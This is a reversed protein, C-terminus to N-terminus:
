LKNQSNLEIFKEITLLMSLSHSYRVPNQETFKKYFEKTIDPPVIEELFKKEFLHMRLNSDNENGLFQLEWNRTVFKKGFFNSAIIKKGKRVARLMMMKNGGFENYNYLNLPDYPQWPIRALEASKMKIYEIQIKRGSLFEEPITCIFECMADDYYPLATQHYHRFVEMNASTWRPAWYMSKFARIRSNANSIKIGNLLGSIRESLYNEFSKEFGYQRWLEEALEVGSPKTVKKLIVKLQDEESINDNVGMDDFLVDGWHGLYFIDGLNSVDEMVAMQRPHTFDAYCKNIEALKDIVKWLYGGPIKYEYFPFGKEASIKKGYKTENFGGTFEYSYSVADTDASLAAAQTRSDIGGSLPLIVKRNKLKENSIKEFLGAFEEACQKFSIERPSYHWQWYTKVDAVCDDGDFENETFPQLAERNTFYTDKELFFGTACFICIAKIDFGPANRNKVIVQGEPIVPMRITKLKM